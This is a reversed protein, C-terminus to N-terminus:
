MGQALKELTQVLHEENRVSQVWNANIHVREISQKLTRAISPKTRTAFFEEIEKAKELSAFQSIPLVLGLFHFRHSNVFSQNVSNSNLKRRCLKYNLYFHCFNSVQPVLLLPFLFPSLSWGTLCNYQYFSDASTWFGM